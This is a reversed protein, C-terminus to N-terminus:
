LLMFSKYSAILPMICDFKAEVKHSQPTTTFVSSKPDFPGPNSGLLQCFTDYNIEKVNLPWLLMNIYTIQTVSKLDSTLITAARYPWQGKIASRQVVQSYLIPRLLNLTM